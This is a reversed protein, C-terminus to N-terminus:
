NNLLEKEPDERGSHIILCSNPEEPVLESYETIFYNPGCCECSEDYPNHGFWQEFIEVADALTAEIWIEDCDEKSHGGSHTDLFQTWAENDSMQTM